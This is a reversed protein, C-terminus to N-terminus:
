AVTWITQHNLSLTEWASGFAHVPEFGAQGVCVKKGPYPSLYLDDNVNSGHGLYHEAKKLFFFHGPIAVKEWVSYTNM